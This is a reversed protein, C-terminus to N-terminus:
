SLKTKIWHSKIQNLKPQETHKQNGLFILDYSDKKFIPNCRKFFFNYIYIYIYINISGV